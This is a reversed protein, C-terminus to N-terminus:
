EFHEIVMPKSARVCLLGDMDSTEETADESEILIDIFGAECLSERISTESLPLCFFREKGVTYYSENRVVLFLVIGGPKLLRFFQKVTKKYVTMTLCAAELCLSSFIITYQDSSGSLVSCKPDNVDCTSLGGQMLADRVRTEWKDLDTPSPPSSSTVQAHKMLMYQFFHSWAFADSKQGLWSDVAALNQPTYDAFHVADVYQALFFSPWLVPGGGFELAKGGKLRDRLEYVHRIPTSIFFNWGATDPQQEDAAERYSALYSSVDFYKKYDESHLLSKTM